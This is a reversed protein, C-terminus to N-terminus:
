ERLILKMTYNFDESKIQIFYLGRLLHGVPLAVIQGKYVDNVVRFKETKGFVNVLRIEATHNTNGFLINVYDAAPNPYLKIDHKKEAPLDRASVILKRKFKASISTTANPMSFLLEKSNSLVNPGHLWAEFGFTINPYALLRISEGALYDGAGRVTGPIIEESQGDHIININLTYTINAAHLVELQDIAFLGNLLGKYRFAIRVNKQGGFHTLNITNLLWELEGAQSSTEPHQRSDWLKEFSNGGQSIMVSLYGNHQNNNSLNNFMFRLAPDMIGSFDMEPLILWGDQGLGDNNSFLFFQEGAYPELEGAQTIIGSSLNWYKQHLGHYIWCADDFTHDFDEEYPWEELTETCQGVYLLYATNSPESWLGGYEATAHYRFFGEEPLTDVYLREGTADTSHIHTDNRYIRYSDPNSNAGAIQLSLNDSNETDHDDDKEYLHQLWLGNRNNENAQQNVYIGILYAFSGQIEFNHARWKENSNDYFFSYGQGFNTLKMLSSPHGSDDETVVAVYFYDYFTLTQELEYVYEELHTATLIDSEYVMTIGDTDFIRFRFRDDPWTHEPHQVFTHSIKKLHIPYNIGLAYADFITGRQPGTWTLHTYSDVYRHWGEPNPATGPEFWTISVEQNDELSASLFGPSPREEMYPDFGGISEAGSGIPDLFSELRQDAQTGNQNWHYWMKGYFDPSNLSECSSSGGTLTGIIKKESNFIPSGSSGGETVGHGNETPVWTVRWTSNPAMQQGSVVPSASFLNTEYTSIKKVDGAPHHISVGSSSGDNSRDWGNWYPKWHAPPTTHLRLLRFDSGNLLPGISKLDAGYVMNYPPTYENTCGKRELNFYFQWFLADQDTANRGCHEASLFYPTADQATNNVLSGSCWSYSNGVRMLMRAIGRKENQWADGEECNINVQCNGSDNIGKEGNLASIGAGYSIHIISEVELGSFLVRNEKGPYYPEQYEIVITEGPILATSFVQNRNNNRHDFAGLILKKEPDYVFLRTKEGLHFQSFNIGTALAEPAHILVRWLHWRDDIVEWQGNESPDLQIEVNFGAHMAIGPQYVGKLTDRMEKMEPPLEVINASIKPIDLRFQSSIPEGGHHIQSVGDTVPFLILIFGALIYLIYLKFSIFGEKMLSENQMEFGEDCATYANFITFLKQKFVLTLAM